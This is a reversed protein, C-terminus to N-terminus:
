VIATVGKETARAYRITNCCEFHWREGVDFKKEDGYRVWGAQSMIEHLLKWDSVTMTDFIKGKFRIDVANGTLHPCSPSPQCVYRSDPNKKWIEEQEQLTRFGFTVELFVKKQTAIEQAKNLLEYAEKTLLCRKGKACLSTETFDILGEPTEIPEKVIEKAEKRLIDFKLSAKARGIIELSGRAEYDYNDTPINYPYNLIYQNLNKNFFNQLNAGVSKKDFCTKETYGSEDKRIRYWISYGYLKGCENNEPKKEININNTVGSSDIEEGFDIEPIGGNQALDYVAQQLSYKASQDIYFLVKEAEKSISILALSSSGVINFDKSGPYIIFVIVAGLLGALVGYLLLQSKKNKIM